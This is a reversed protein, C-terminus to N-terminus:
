FDSEEYAGEGGNRYLGKDGQQQQAEAGKKENETRSWNRAAAQWDSMPKNGVRWGCSEYYDLFHQPEVNLSNDAIYKSLIEINPKQFPTHTSNYVNVNVNENKCEVNVNENPKKAEFRQNRNEFGITKEKRPRGGKASNIFRQNNAEIQPKIPAFISSLYVSKKNTLEIETGYLAFNVILDYMILREKEPLKRIAEHYSQYFVFSKREM